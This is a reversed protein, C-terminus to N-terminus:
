AKLAVPRAPEATERIERITYTPRDQSEHYTRAQIEALLGMTVLQVGTFILLIGLWLLPRNAISQYGFLRQYSLWATIALGVMGMPVGILGFMQLPRTSYSLLFKVTLLDLIVRFTRSLGYKSRGHRRARHNVVVEAINVGFESAIAPLFRHMEGYLKLPKVVEARFVKLSCGYDHLHVGTSLSILKNALESPLRRTLWPDKREKRWGCVIDAGAEISRILDPLDRPDNQLDGDSTAILRGKAHRFGAAFAATQGFNRRFQIIRWRPDDQQHRCLKDFSDDTSGDDVVIVEYSRGWRELAETTERYLEDINPSENRVPIVVSLEPNM